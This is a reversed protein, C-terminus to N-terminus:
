AVDSQDLAQAIGLDDLMAKEYQKDDAESDKFPAHSRSARGRWLGGEGKRQDAGEAASQEQRMGVGDDVGLLLKEDLQRMNREGQERDRRTPCPPECKEDLRGDASDGGPDPWEAQNEDTEHQQIIALRSSCSRWSFSPAMNARLM